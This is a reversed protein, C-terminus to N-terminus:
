GQMKQRHAGLCKISCYVYNFKAFQESKDTGEKACYDCKWTIIEKPKVVPPTWWALMKLPNGHIKDIDAQPLVLGLRQAIGEHAHM